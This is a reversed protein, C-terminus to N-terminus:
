GRLKNRARSEVRKAITEPSQPRSIAARWKESKLRGVTMASRVNEPMVDWTNVADPAVNCCLPNGLHEDLLTQEVGRAEETDLTEILKFEFESPGRYLEQLRQTRHKGIRLKDLHGRHRLYLNSSSGVYYVGTPRHTMIYAGPVGKYKLFEYLTNEVGCQIVLQKPGPSSNLIFGDCVHIKLLRNLEDSSQELSGTFLIEFDFDDWEDFLSQLATNKYKGAELQKRILYKLASPKQSAGLIYHGTPVHTLKFVCPTISKSM